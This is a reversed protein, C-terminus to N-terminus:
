LLLHMMMTMTLGQLIRIKSGFISTKTLYKQAFLGNALMKVVKALSRRPWGLLIEQQRPTTKVSNKGPLGPWSHHFPLEHLLAAVVAKAAEAATHQSKRGKEFCPKFIRRGQQCAAAKGMRQLLRRREARASRISLRAEFRRTGGQATRPSNLPLAFRARKSM